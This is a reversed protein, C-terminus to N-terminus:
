PEEGVGAIVESDPLVIPQWPKGELSATVRLRLRREHATSVKVWFPVSDGPQLAGPRELRDAVVSAQRGVDFIIGPSDCIELVLHDLRGQKLRLEVKWSGGTTAAWRLAEEWVPALEDHRRQAEIAAMQETALASTKASQAQNRAYLASFAAIVASIVAIVAAAWEM